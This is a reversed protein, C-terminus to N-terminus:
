QAQTAAEVKALDSRAPSEFFAEIARNVARLVPERGKATSLLTEDQRNTLFGMEVLVSPTEPNLLVFFEDHRHPNALLPGAKGLEAIMFQALVASRDQLDRQLLDGLITTVGPDVPESRTPPVWDTEQRLARARAEGRSSLTYVSAGRLEAREGADAHLSVFLDGDLAIARDIRTQLVITEDTERLLRVDFKGRAVMIDRLQHAAALTVTKEQLGSPGTAGPDLGGHGADLVIVPRRGESGTRVRQAQAPTGSISPKLSASPQISEGDSVELDLVLRYFPQDAAPQLWFERAVRAETQLDVTFTLRGNEDRGLRGKTILGKGALTAGQGALATGVLATRPDNLSISLRKGDPAPLLTYQVQQTVDFVIRTRSANQGLRIHALGAFDNQPGSGPAGDRSPNTTSNVAPGGQALANEQKLVGAVLLFAATLAVAAGFLARMQTISKQTPKPKPRLRDKDAAGNKALAALRSNSGALRKTPTPKGM